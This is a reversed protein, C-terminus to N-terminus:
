GRIVVLYRFKNFFRNSWRQQVCTTAIVVTPSIETPGLLLSSWDQFLISICFVEQDIDESDVLHGGNDKRSHCWWANEVDVALMWWLEHDVGVTSEQSQGRLWGSWFPFTSCLAVPVICTSTARALRTLCIAPWTRMRKNVDVLKKVMEHNRNRRRRCTWRRRPILVSNLM